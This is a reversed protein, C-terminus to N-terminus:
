KRWFDKDHVLISNVFYNNGKFYSLGGWFRSAKEDKGLPYAYTSRCITWNGDVIFTEIVRRFVSQLSYTISIDMLGDPRELQGVFVYKSCFWNFQEDGVQRRIFDSVESKSKDISESVQWIRLFIDEGEDEYVHNAMPTGSLFGFGELSSFAEDVRWDSNAYYQIHGLSDLNKKYFGPTTFLDYLGM